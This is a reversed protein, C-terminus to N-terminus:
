EYKKRGKFLILLLPLILQFGQVPQSYFNSFPLLVYITTLLACGIKLYEGGLLSLLVVYAIPILCLLLAFVWLGLMGKMLFATYFGTSATFEPVVLSPKFNVDDSPYLRKSLTAVSFNATLFHVNSVDSTSNARTSVTYNLNTFPNTIYAYTWFLPAISQHNEFMEGAQGIKMILSSDTVSSHMGYDHNMRYNGSLGFIYAAVVGVVSIYALIRFNFKLKREELLVFLMNLGLIVLTGRSLAVVLPTITLLFKVMLEKKRSPDLLYERFVLLAYLSASSFLFVHFLPVGYEKYNVNGLIPFGKSYVGEVFASLFYFVAWGNKKNLRSSQSIGSTSFTRVSIGFLVSSLILMAIFAYLFFSLNSELKINLRSLKFNYGSVAVILAIAGILLPNIVRKNKNKM